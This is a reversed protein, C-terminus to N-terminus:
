RAAVLRHVVFRAGSPLSVTVEVDALDGRWARVDIRRAFGTAVTDDFVAPTRGPMAKAREMGAEAYEAARM